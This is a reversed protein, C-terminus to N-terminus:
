NRYIIDLNNEIKATKPLDMIWVRFIENVSQPDEQSLAMRAKQQKELNNQTKQALLRAMVAGHAASVVPGWEGEKQRFSHILEASAYGYGPVYSEYAVLGTSDLSAMGVKPPLPSSLAVIESRKSEMEKKALQLQEKQVLSNRISERSREFNRGQPFQVDRSFVYIGEENQLVESIMDKKQKASFAFSQVGQLYVSGLPLSRGKEFIATKELHLHFSRVLTSDLGKKDAKARISEAFNTISDITELGVSIKLLIHSVKVKEVKDETKKEHLLIVHYGFRTLVPDSVEGPQLNFAANAFEPVWTERTQFEGLRGGSDASSPDNSYSKALDAFAEGNQIRQKLENGFDKMLTTDQHSPTLPIRIYALRAAENSYNFSDPNATFYAKLDAESFKTPEVPFAESPVFYFQIKGLDERTELKFIEELDTRHVQSKLLQQIQLQPIVSLKLQEEMARMGNRDYISDQTLWSQFRLTDLTSDRLFVPVRDPGEYRAISNGVELPHKVVYDKMEIPSVHLGYNKFVEQILISQVKYQFLNERMEALQAGEATKGTRQEESRIFNQMESQFSPISIEEGKVSGIVDGAHYGQRSAGAKDMLLLGLSVLAFAAIIVWKARDKIWMMSM